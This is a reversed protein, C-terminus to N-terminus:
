RKKMYNPNSQQKRQQALVRATLGIKNYREDSPSQESNEIQSIRIDIDRRLYSKAPNIKQQTETNM